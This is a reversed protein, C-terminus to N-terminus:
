PFLRFDILSDGEFFAELAFPEGAFLRPLWLRDDAWMEDYPIAHESHWFPLAEDTEVMQGSWESAEFVTCNLSYGDAFVFALTGRAVPNRPTLGVEERCERVAAELPTEGPEIRGGPANIKGAGLGRKKRILLVLGGRRLFVLVARDKPNSFDIAELCM